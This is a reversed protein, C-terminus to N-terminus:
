LETVTATGNVAHYFPDSGFSCSASNAYVGTVCDSTVPGTYFFFTAESSAGDFGEVEMLINTNSIKFIYIEITDITVTTDPTGSCDSEPAYQKRILWSGSLTKSWKCPDVGDQALVHTGSIDSPLHFYRSQSGFSQCGCETIGSFIVQVTAPTSSCYECAVGGGCCGECILGGPGQLLKLTSPNWGPLGM